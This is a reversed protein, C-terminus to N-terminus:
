LDDPDQEPQESDRPNGTYSGLVDTNATGNYGEWIESIEETMKNISELAKKSPKKNKKNM